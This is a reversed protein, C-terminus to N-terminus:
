EGHIKLALSFDKCKQWARAHRGETTIIRTGGWREERLLSLDEQIERFGVPIERFGIEKDGNNDRVRYFNPGPIPQSRRELPCVASVHPQLMCVRLRERM